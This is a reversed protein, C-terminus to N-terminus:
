GPCFFGRGLPSLHAPIRDKSGLHKNLREPPIRARAASVNIARNRYGRQNPYHQRLINKIVVVEDAAAHIPNKAWRRAVSQKPPNNKAKVKGQLYAAILAYAEQSLQPAQWEDAPVSANLEILYGLMKFHYQRAAHMAEKEMAPQTWGLPIGPRAFKPGVLNPREPMLPGIWALIAHDDDWKPLKAKM